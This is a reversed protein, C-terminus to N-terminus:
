AQVRNLYWAAKAIDQAADGKKGARFAYKIANGRCYAAFGENGLAAEIADICEVKGQYHPPHNVMDNAEAIHDSAATSAKTQSLEASVFDKLFHRCEQLNMPVRCAFHESMWECFSVISKGLSDRVQAIDNRNAEAAEARQVQHRIDSQLREISLKISESEKIGLAHRINNLILRADTVEQELSQTKQILKDVESGATTAIVRAANCCAKDTPMIDVAVPSANGEGGTTEHGATDEASLSVAESPPASVSSRINNAGGDAPTASCFGKGKPTLEYAPMGTVDDRKRLLYGQVVCDKVTDQVKKRHWMPILECLDDITAMKAARIATCLKLRNSM